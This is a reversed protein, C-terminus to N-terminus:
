KQSDSNKNQSGEESKEKKEEITIIGSVEGKAELRQDTRYYIISPAEIKNKGDDVKAPSGEMEIRDEAEYLIAHACIALLDGEKMDVNGTAEMKILEDTKVDKYVNIQDAYIHDDTSNPDTSNKIVRANGKLITIGTKKDYVMEKGSFRYETRSSASWVSIIAFCLILLIILPYIKYNRM